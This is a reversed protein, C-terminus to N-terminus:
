IKEIQVRGSFFTAGGGMDALRDPTLANVLYHKGEADAWLGQSAAVGPLVNEGVAAPLICSGRDNWVKVLDGNEIGKEEADKINLHLKPEKELKIHKENNSFTSNLFNHNPGPVFLFPYKDTEVLPTHTPLGPYGHQEMMKSYLEIKGSPTPLQDPFITKRNAKVFHKETLSDYDIGDLWPNDPYDLAQRIMEEDSDKLPEDDFGMAEALLRFVETNSKSEGYKEIVPQQIQAYHHWYSTYFDTNEFASSAPLVIDAYRATETLFLDHVVTFLDERELGKRVKNAEPAVVAPNSSYVFLSRIPPETELLAKGLQNMNIVRPTRGKLLDPRQLAKTNYALFATNGKIAGGGKITWQGTIAPLCAITRVIMGGNDHHQLGNGIRILSPSTRGYLRALEIIDNRSVGTIAEVTAPDYQLVHRRLEEHGVTFEKLFSEDALNEEFLVHMIGLALASDTGPRIPIFWDAMRGTQNKHVDIVVIKAGNKRAKQAITIQHMNTSVANIGWFIFLKTETTDEPDTGISGGMTYKYGVSGAPTCIARDLQSSGLRHFFRRDMGEATLNGMNGYFSYPLISEPGEQEILSQWRTRITEIAEDWSIPEFIGDGKPGTRKLPTKLRKPDYIRETMNRVKNCINGQTVPHEPDGQIKVIKGDKKHVLLGCQDPCDLSCVSKFIGDKQDVYSEM